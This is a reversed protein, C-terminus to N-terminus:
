LEFLQCLDPLGSARAVVVAVVSSVVCLEGCSSFPAVARVRM